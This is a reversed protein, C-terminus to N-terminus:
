METREAEYYPTKAFQMLGNYADVFEQQQAAFVTPQANENLYVRAKLVVCKAYAEYIAEPVNLFQNATDEDLSFEKLLNGDSRPGVCAINKDHYQIITQSVEDCSTSVAPAINVEETAWNTTWQSPCGKDADLTPTYVLPCKAGNSGRKYVVGHVIGYPMPFSDQGPDNLFTDERYNWAWNHLDRMFICAQNFAILVSPSVDRLEVINRNDIIARQNLTEQILEKYSKM